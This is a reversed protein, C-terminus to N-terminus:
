RRPMRVGRPVARTYQLYSEGFRQALRREERPVIVNVTGVLVIMGVLVGISGYFVTWGLWLM